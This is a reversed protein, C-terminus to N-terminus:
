SALFRRHTLEQTFDRDRRQDAPAQGGALGRRVIRDIRGVRAARGGQARGSRMVRDVGALGRRAVHAVRSGGRGRRGLGGCRRGLGIRGLRRRRGDSLHVTLRQRLEARRGLRVARPELIGRHASLALAGGGRRSGRRRGGCRRGGRRRGGGRRGGRRRGSRHSGRRGGRRRRLGRRGCGGRRGRGRRGDISRQRRFLHDVVLGAGRRGRRRSGIGLWRRPAFVRRQRW